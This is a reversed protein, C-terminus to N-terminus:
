FGGRGGPTLQDIPRPPYTFNTSGGSHCCEGVSIVGFKRSVKIRFSGTRKPKLVSTWQHNKEMYIADGTRPVDLADESSEEEFMVLLVRSKRKDSMAFTSLSVPSFLGDPITNLHPMGGFASWDLDQFPKGLPTQRIAFVSVTTEAPNPILPRVLYYSGALFLLLPVAVRIALPLPNTRRVVLAPMVLMGWLMGCGAALYVGLASIAIMWGAGEMLLGAALFGMVAGLIRILWRPLWCTEYVFALLTQGFGYLLTPVGMYLAFGFFFGFESSQPWHPAQWGPGPRDSYPLYGICNIILMLLNPLFDAAIIYTVFVWIM